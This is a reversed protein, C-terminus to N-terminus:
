REATPSRLLLVTALLGSAAALGNLLRGLAASSAVAAYGFLLLLAIEIILAPLRAQRGFIALAIGAGAALIPLVAALLALGSTGHGTDLGALALVPLGVFIFVLIGQVIM